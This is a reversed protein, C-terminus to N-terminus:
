QDDGESAYESFGEPTAHAFGDPVKGVRRKGLPPMPADYYTNISASLQSNQAAERAADPGARLLLHHHAHRDGFRQLRGDGSAGPRRCTSFPPINLQRCPARYLHEPSNWSHLLAYSRRCSYRDLGRVDSRGHCGRGACFSGYGGGRPHRPFASGRYGRRSCGDGPDDAFRAHDRGKLQAHALAGRFRVIIAAGNPLRM